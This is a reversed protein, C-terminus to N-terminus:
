EVSMSLVPRPPASLLSLFSTDAIKVTYLSTYKTQLPKLSGQGSSLLTCQSHRTITKDHSGGSGQWWLVVTSISQQQLCSKGHSVCDDYWGWSHFKQRYISQLLFYSIKANLVVDGDMSRLQSSYWHYGPLIRGPRAEWPCFMMHNPNIQSRYNSYFFIGLQTRIILIIMLTNNRPIM